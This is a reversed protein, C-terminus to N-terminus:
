AASNTSLRGGGRVSVIVVVVVVVVVVVFLVFRSLCWSFVDAVVCGMALSVAQANRISVGRTRIDRALNGESQRPHPGGRSGTGTCTTWSRARERSALLSRSRRAAGADRERADRGARELGLRPALVRPCGPVDM